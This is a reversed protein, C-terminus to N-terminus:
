EAIFFTLCRLNILITVQVKYIVENGNYYYIVLRMLMTIFFESVFIVNQVNIKM